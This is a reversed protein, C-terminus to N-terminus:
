GDGWFRGDSAADLGGGSRPPLAIKTAVAGIAASQERAVNWHKPYLWQYEMAAIVTSAPNRRARTTKMSVVQGEPAACPHYTRHRLLCLGHGLGGRVLSRRVELIQFGEFLMEASDPHPSVEKAPLVFAGQGTISELPHAAL